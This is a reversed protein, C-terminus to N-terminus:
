NTEDNIRIIKNLQLYCIEPKPWVMFKAAIKLEIKKKLSQNSDGICKNKELATRM